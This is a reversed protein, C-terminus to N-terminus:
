TDTSVSTIMGQVSESNITSTVGDILLGTTSSVSSIMGQVSEITSDILSGVKGILQAIDGNGISSEESQQTAPIIAGATKKIEEAAM